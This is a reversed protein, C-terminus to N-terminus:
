HLLVMFWEFWRARWGTMPRESDHEDVLQQTGLTARFRVEPEGGVRKSVTTMLHGKRIAAAALFVLATIGAREVENEVESVGLSGGGELLRKLEEMWLYEEQVVIRFECAQVRHEVGSYRHHAHYVIVL